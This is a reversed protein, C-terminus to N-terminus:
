LLCELDNYKRIEKIQVKLAYLGLYPFPDLHMVNEKIM